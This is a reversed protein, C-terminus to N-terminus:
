IAYNDPVIIEHKDISLPLPNKFNVKCIMLVNGKWYTHVFELRTTSTTYDRLKKLHEIKFDLDKYIVKASGNISTLHLNIKGKILELDMRFNENRYKTLFPEYAKGGQFETPYIIGIRPAKENYLKIVLQM